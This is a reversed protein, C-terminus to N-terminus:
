DASQAPGAMSPDNGYRRQLLERQKQIVAMGPNTNELKTECTSGPVPSDCSGFGSSSSCSNIWAEVLARSWRWGNGLPLPLPLGNKRHWTAYHRKLMKASVGIEAATEELSLTFIQM